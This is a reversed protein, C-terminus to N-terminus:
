EQGLPIDSKRRNILEIFQKLASIVLPRDFGYVDSHDANPLVTQRKEIGSSSKAPAAEFLKQGLPFPVVQDRFGHLFLLPSTVNAIYKESEFRDILILNVPLYPFHHRGADVLSNFTSQAIVGGPEIRDRCLESALRIAIGGGLSEGYLVIREAPVGLDRTAYNWITRADRIINAESPKGENDGYGRHDFIMADAGLQGFTNLLSTRNARNGANGPFLLVLPRGQALLERSDPPLGSKKQGALALWGHLTLGDHTRVTVDSVAQPVGAEQASLQNSKSPHYILSRQFWVIMILFLVCIRFMPFLLRRAFALQTWQPPPM